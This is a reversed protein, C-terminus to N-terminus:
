PSFRWSWTLCVPGVGFAEHYGDHLAAYYGWYGGWRRCSRAIWLYRGCSEWRGSRIFRRQESLGVYDACVEFAWRGADVSLGPGTMQKSFFSFLIM